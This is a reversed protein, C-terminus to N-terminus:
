APADVRPAGPLRAVSHHGCDSFGIVELALLETAVEYPALVGDRRRLAGFKWPPSLEYGPLRGTPLTLLSALRNRFTDISHEHADTILHVMIDNNGESGQTEM